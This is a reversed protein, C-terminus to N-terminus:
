PHRFLNAYAHEKTPAAALVLNGQQRCCRDHFGDVLIFVLDHGDADGLFAAPQGGIVGLAQQAAVLGLGPV